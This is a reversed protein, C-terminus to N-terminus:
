LKPSKILFNAVEQNFEQAYRLHINHKGDPFSRLRAGKIKDMLFPVHEPVIMPDKEGHLILTPCHIDKLLEKCLNGDKEKYITLLTDIWESWLKPFEQKGYVEEMPKRMRESWKSVDRISEYIQVEKPDVYANSGWIVLNEVAGPHKAAQILGTIGGDSWGLISYTPFALKEMLKHAYKADNHFFDVTFLRRPPVSKGYGPPDWGIITYNPLLSPLQDIQPGFDTRASGLAGPMLLVAKDGSGVRVYNINVDEVRIKAETFAMGRRFSLFITSKLSKFIGATIM